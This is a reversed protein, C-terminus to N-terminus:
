CSRVAVKERPAGRPPLSDGEIDVNPVARDLWRPLAWAHSGLLSLVAAVLSGLALALVVFAWTERTRPGTTEPHPLQRVLHEM